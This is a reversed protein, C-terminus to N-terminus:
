KNTIKRLNFPVADLSYDFTYGIQEAKAKIISLENYEYEGADNFLAQIELPILDPTTFLDEQIEGNLYMQIGEDIVSWNIGINADHNDTIYKVILNYGSETITGMDSFEDEYRSRIDEISWKGFTDCEETVNFNSKLWKVLETASENNLSLYNTKVVGKTIQVRAPYGITNPEIKSLQDKYYTNM